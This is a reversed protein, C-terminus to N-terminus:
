LALREEFDFELQRPMRLTRYRRWPGFQARAAARFPIANQRGAICSAKACCRYAYSVSILLHDAVLRMRQGHSRLLALWAGALCPSLEEIHANQAEENEGLYALPDRGGDSSLLNMLPHARGGDADEGTGHDLRVAHRVNLETYRVMAQYLHRLLLDQFQADQFDMPRSHRSSLTVAMLWAENVVDGYLHEGRTARAIRKLDAARQRSFCEFPDM